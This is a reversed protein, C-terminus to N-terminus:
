YRDSLMTLKADFTEGSRYITLTMADGIHKQWRIELLEEVSFIDQGDVALIVDYPQLGARDAARGKEVEVVMVATGGSITKVTQVMIGLSPAGKYEGEAILADVIHRADATPIAFGLGEVGAQTSTIAHSMKLTNIGIVQGRDNVLPGGSNGNNLAATTQITTISTDDLTISRDIASIIGETMTGRLELGLPNGIAYVADGVACYASDAFEAAPFSAADKAHLVALDSQTDYGVLEAEFVMDNWLKVLCYEGGSIVHANTVIYGDETMIIGTGLMAADGVQSMILVTSPNVRQYIEQATLATEAPAQVKMHVQPNGPFRPITTDTEDFIHTISSATGDEPVSGDAPAQPKSWCLLGIVVAAALVGVIILFIWLGKHRRWRSPKDESQAKLPLATPQIYYEVVEHARPKPVYWEVVERDEEQQEQLEQNEDMM